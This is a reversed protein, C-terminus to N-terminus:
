WPRFIIGRDQLLGKIQASVQDESTFEPIHLDFELDTTIRDGLWVTEIQQPNVTTKILELNAQTLEVATVILIAGADLMLHSVEALRRLHEEQNNNNGNKIDADVGYLLNGIGLFYVVKGDNFLRKELAKATPKKGVDEEGTILILTSKQNYKEAREERSILSQEWKYNRRMVKERVWSQEDELAESIIGGGAIEFEDVIVFRSTEEIEGALDFAMARDLKFVVEAVDHREIKEKNEDQNLNSADIVRNIKQLRAKVKATGVKLYYVKDKVLDQRALWFLNAKIRASVRPEAEDARAALEGRTIYIQEDLTFGTAKGVKVKHQKDEKFGEISKVTSKKGSPYFVVEDGVNMEGAEVTGAVIRRDDGGKTFKYVDQVPMRFPKNHPLAENEFSDLQELVTQGHYWDMKDSQAAVNDGLMGSVPIFTEAELGIEALFDTYEEVIKQYTDQDYDVLDMKNVVVAIQKIGLMSLMYGHRRSNERVGESADIVLLAAEARAAGTVMNKLFEIHGPADLIIYQRMDTQFFVRASDITIGQAQEDKLADLLFAYEFPKSNKRCTEKVQELKGEPLSDTDALMRGIITSKGHDVHGAIVLNLDQEGKTNNM